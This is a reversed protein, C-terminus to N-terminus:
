EKNKLEKLNKILTMQFPMIHVLMGFKLEDIEQDDKQKVDKAFSGLENIVEDLSKSMVDIIEDITFKDEM